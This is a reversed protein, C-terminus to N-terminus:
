SARRFEKIRSLNLMRLENIFLRRPNADANSNSLDRCPLLVEGSLESRASARIDRLLGSLIFRIEITATRIAPVIGNVTPQAV